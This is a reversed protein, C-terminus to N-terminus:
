GGQHIGIKSVRGNESFIFVVNYNNYNYYTFVNSLVEKEDPDGFREQIQAKSMNFNMNFPIKGTFQNYGEFGREYFFIGEITDQIAFISFGSEFFCVENENYSIPAKEFFAQVLPDSFDKGLFQLLDYKPNFSVPNFEEKSFRIDITEVESHDLIFPYTGSLQYVIFDPEKLDKRAKYMEMVAFASTRAIKYYELLDSTRKNDVNEIRIQILQAGKEKIKKIDIKKNKFKFHSNEIVQIINADILENKLSVECSFLMFITIFTINLIPRM